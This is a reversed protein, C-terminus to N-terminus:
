GYIDLSVYKAVDEIMVTLLKLERNLNNRTQSVSNLSTVTQTTDSTKNATKLNNKNSSKKDVDIFENDNYGTESNTAEDVDIVEVDDIVSGITSRVSGVGIPININDIEYYDSWKVDYLYVLMKAVDHTSKTTIIEPVERSGIKYELLDNVIEFQEIMSVWNTDAGLLSIEEFLKKESLSQWENFRM